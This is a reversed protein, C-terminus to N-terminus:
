WSHLRAIRVARASRSFNFNSAPVSVTERRSNFALNPYWDINPQTLKTLYPQTQYRLNNNVGQHSASQLQHSQSFLRTAPGPRFLPITESIARNIPSVLVRAPVFTVFYWVVHHHFNSHYLFGIFALSSISLRDFGPSFPSKVM